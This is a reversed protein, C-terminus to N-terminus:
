ALPHVRLLLTSMLLLTTRLLTPVLATTGRLLPGFCHQCLTTSENYVCLRLSGDVISWFAQRLAQRLSRGHQVSGCPDRNPKERLSTEHMPIHRTTCAVVRTACAQCMDIGLDFCPLVPGSIAILWQELYKKRSHWRYRESSLVFLGNSPVSMRDHM